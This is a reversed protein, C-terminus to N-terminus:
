GDQLGASPRQADAHGGSGVNSDYFIKSEDYPKRKENEPNSISSKPELSGIGKPAMIATTDHLLLGPNVFVDTCAHYAAKVV